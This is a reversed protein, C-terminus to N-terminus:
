RVTHGHPCHVLATLVELGNNALPLDTLALASLWGLVFGVRWSLVAAGSLGPTPALFNSCVYQYVELSTYSQYVCTYDTGSENWDCMQDIHDVYGYECAQHFIEHSTISLDFSSAILLDPSFDLDVIEEPTLVSPSVSLSLVPLADTQHTAVTTVDTSFVYDLM